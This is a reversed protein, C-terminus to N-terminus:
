VNGWIPLQLCQGLEVLIFRVIPRQKIYLTKQINPLIVRLSNIFHDLFMLLNFKPGMGFYAFNMKEFLM